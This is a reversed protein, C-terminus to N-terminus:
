EGGLRRGPGRAGSWNGSAPQQPAPAFVSGFSRAQTTGATPTFWNKVFQPTPVMNRGGGFTPWIRTLFDYLHAAMLGSVEVLTSSWGGSVASLFLLGYPLYKAPFTLFFFSVNAHPNDQAFTYAFSLILAKLLM